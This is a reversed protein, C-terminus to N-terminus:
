LLPNTAINKNVPFLNLVYEPVHGALLTPMEFLSYVADLFDNQLYGTLQM